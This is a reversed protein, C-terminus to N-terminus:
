KRENKKMLEYNFFHKTKLGKRVWIIVETSNTFFRCSLNTPLSKKVWTINNLIKFDGLSQLISGIIFINGWM